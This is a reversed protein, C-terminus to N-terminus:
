KTVKANSVFLYPRTDNKVGSIVLDAGDMKPKTNLGLGVWGTTKVLAAFNIFENDVTEWVLTYNPSLKAKYKVGETDALISCLFVICCFYPVQLMKVM